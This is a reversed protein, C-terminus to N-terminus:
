SQRSMPVTSALICCQLSTHTYTASRINRISRLGKAALHGDGVKLHAHYKSVHHELACSNYNAPLGDSLLRFCTPRDSFTQPCSQHEREVMTRRGVITKQIMRKEFCSPQGWLATQQRYNKWETWGENGTGNLM